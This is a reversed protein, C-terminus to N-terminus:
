SLVRALRDVVHLAFFVFPIYGSASLSSSSNNADQRIFIDAVNDTDLIAVENVCHVYASFNVSLQRNQCCQPLLRTGRLRWTGSVPRPLLVKYNTSISAPPAEIRAKVAITFNRKIATTFDRTFNKFSLLLM